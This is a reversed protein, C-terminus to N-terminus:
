PLIEPIYNGPRLFSYIIYNGSGVRCPINENVYLVVGGGHKNRNQCFTKYSQM